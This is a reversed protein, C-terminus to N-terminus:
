EMKSILAKLNRYTSHSVWLCLALGRMGLSGACTSRGNDRGAKRQLCDTPYGGSGGFGQQCRDQATGPWRQGPDQVPHWVTQGLGMACQVLDLNPIHVLPLKM